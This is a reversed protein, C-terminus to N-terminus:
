TKLKENKKPHGKPDEHEAGGQSGNKQGGGGGGGGGGRERERERERQSPRGDGHRPRHPIAYIPQRRSEQRWQHYCIDWHGRDDAEAWFAGHETGEKVVAATLVARQETVIQPDM